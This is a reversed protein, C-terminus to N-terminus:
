ISSYICKFYRVTLWTCILAVVIKFHLWLWDGINHYSAHASHRYPSKLHDCGNHRMVYESWWIADQFILSM